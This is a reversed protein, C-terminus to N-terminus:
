SAAPLELAPLELNLAWLEFLLVLADVLSGSVSSSVPNASQSTQVKNSSQVKFKSSEIEWKRSQGAL